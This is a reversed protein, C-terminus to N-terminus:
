TMGPPQQQVSDSRAPPEAATQRPLGREQRAQRLGRILQAAGVIMAGWAVVGIGIVESALLGLATVLVGALCILGGTLMNARAAANLQLRGVSNAEAFSYGCDCAQATDPCVLGCLPCDQPM